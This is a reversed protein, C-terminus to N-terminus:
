FFLRFAAWVTTAELDATSGKLTEHELGLMAKANDGCFYYNLGAYITHNEDGLRQIRPFSGLEHRVTDVINRRNITFVDSSAAAWQYRAVFELRDEILEYTPVVIVGYVDEDNTQGYIGNVMMRWEGLRFRYTASTAWDYDYVQNAVTNDADSYLFDLWMRKNKGLDINASAYYVAGGEWQGFTDDEEPAM